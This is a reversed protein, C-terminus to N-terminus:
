IGNHVSGGIYIQMMQELDEPTNRVTNVLDMDSQKYNNQEMFLQLSMYKMTEDSITQEIVEEYLNATSNGRLSDLKEEDTKSRKKEFVCMETHTSFTVYEISITGDDNITVLPLDVSEHLVDSVETNALSGPVYLLTQSGDPHQIITKGLPKHVHGVIAFDVGRTAYEIDNQQTSIYGNMQKMLGNPIIRETHFVAIHYNANDERIPAYTSACDNRPNFHMLSVQVGNFMIVEPTKIIPIERHVPDKTAVRANPQILNLEPNSDMNRLLHNGICGYFNGNVVDALKRDLEIHSLATGVSSGYGGDYWDGISMFADINRDECYKILDMEVALTADTFGAITTFDKYRKHLDGGFLIKSSM